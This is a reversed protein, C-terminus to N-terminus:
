KVCAASISRGSGRSPPPPPAPRGAIGVGNQMSPIPSPNPSGTLAAELFNNAREDGMNNTQRLPSSLRPNYPIPSSSSRQRNLDFGPVGLFQSQQQQQQPFQSIQQSQQQLQPQQQQQQQGYPQSLGTNFAGFSGMYHQKISKSASGTLNPALPQMVPASSGTVQPSLDVNPSNNMPNFFISPITSPTGHISASDVTVHQFHNISDQMDKLEEEENEEIPQTVVPKLVNSGNGGKMRELLQDMPLSFDITNSAATAEPVAAPTPEIGVQDSFKVKKSNKAKKKPSPREGTLLFQTFSDLDLKKEPGANHENTDLDDNDNEDKLRKRSMISIPKPIPATVKILATNLPEGRLAHALLRMM